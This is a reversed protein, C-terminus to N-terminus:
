SQLLRFGLCFLGGGVDYGRGAATWSGDYRDWEGISNQVPAMDAESGRYSPGVHSMQGRRLDATSGHGVEAATEGLLCAAMM